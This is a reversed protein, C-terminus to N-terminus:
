RHGSNEHCGVAHRRPYRSLQAIADESERKLDSKVEFVTRGLLADIRGRVEPVQKEFDISASDAGLGRTLLMYLLTRVKEHGPKSVLETVTQELLDKDM